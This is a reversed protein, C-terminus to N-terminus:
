DGNDDNNRRHNSMMRKSRKKEKKKRFIRDFNERATESTFGGFKYKHGHEVVDDAVVVVEGTGKKGLVKNIEEAEGKDSTSFTGNNGFLRQKGGVTVGELERTTAKIVQYKKKAM